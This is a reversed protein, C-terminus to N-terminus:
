DGAEGDILRKKNKDRLAAISLTGSDGRKAVETILQDDDLQSADFTVSNGPVGMEETLQAYANDIITRPDIGLYECVNILVEMPM